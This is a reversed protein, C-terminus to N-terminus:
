KGQQKVKGAIQLVVQSVFTAKEGVAMQEIPKPLKIATLLEKDAV